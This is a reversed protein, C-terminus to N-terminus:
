GRRVLDVAARGIMYFFGLLVSANVPLLLPSFGASVYTTLWPLAIQCVIAGTTFVIAAIKRRQGDGGLVYLHAVVLLAVPETFLHFHTLEVLQRYSKPYAMGGEDGRWWTAGQEASLGMGDHHLLAASALGLLTLLLYAGYLTRAGADLRRLANPVRGTFDKM